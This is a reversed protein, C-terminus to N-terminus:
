HVLSLLCDQFPRREDPGCQWRTFAPCIQSSLRQGFIGAQQRTARARTSTGRRAARCHKSATVDDVPGDLNHLSPAGRDQGPRAGATTHIRTFTLARIMCVLSCHVNTCAQQEALRQEKRRRAEQTAWWLAKAWLVKPREQAVISDHQGYRQQGSDQDSDGSLQAPLPEVRRLDHSSPRAGPEGASARTGESSYLLSTQRSSQLSVPPCSRPSLPALMPM